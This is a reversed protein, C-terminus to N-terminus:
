VREEAYIEIIAIRKRMLKEQQCEVEQEKRDVPCCAM